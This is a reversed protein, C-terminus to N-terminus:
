KAEAPAAEGPPAADAAADKAEAPDAAGEVPAPTDGAPAATDSAPSKKAPPAAKLRELERKTTALDQKLTQDDPAADALQQRIDVAREYSAVAKDNEGEAKQIRATAFVCEGLRSKFDVNAPEDKVLSELMDRSKLLSQLAQPRRNRASMFLATIRNLAALDDRFGVAQPYKQNLETIAAMAGQVTFFLSGQHIEGEAPTGEKLVAWELPPVLRLACDQLRPYKDPETSTDKLQRLYSVGEKMAEVSKKTGLKAQLAAIHFEASALEPMLSKDKAYTKVFNEYYDLSPALLEKRAPEAGKLKSNTLVAATYQDIARLAAALEERARSREESARMAVYTSGVALTTTAVLLFTLLIASLVSGRRDSPTHRKPCQM